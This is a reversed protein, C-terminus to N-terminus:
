QGCEAKLKKYAGVCEGIVSGCRQLMVDEYDLQEKYLKTEGRADETERMRFKVAEEYRDRQAHAQRVLYVESGIQALLLGWVLASSWTYKM